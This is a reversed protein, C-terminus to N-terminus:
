HYEHINVLSTIHKYLVFMHIDVAGYPLAFGATGLFGELSFELARVLLSWSYLSPLDFHLSIEGQYSM